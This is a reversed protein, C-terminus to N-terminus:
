INKSNKVYRLSIVDDTMHSCADSGQLAPGLRSEDDQSPEGNHIASKPDCLVSGYFYQSEILLWIDFVLSSILDIKEKTKLRIYIYIYIFIYVFLFLLLLLFALLPEIDRTTGM